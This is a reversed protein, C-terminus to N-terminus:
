IYYCKKIRLLAKAVKLTARGDRLITSYRPIITDPRLSHQDTGTSSVDAWLHCARFTRRFAADPRYHLEALRYDNMVQVVSRDKVSTELRGYEIFSDESTSIIQDTSDSVHLDTVPQSHANIELLIDGSNNVGYAVIQSTM